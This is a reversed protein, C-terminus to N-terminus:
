GIIENLIGKQPTDDLVFVSPCGETYVSLDNDLRIMKVSSM